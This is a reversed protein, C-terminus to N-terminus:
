KVVGKIMFDQMMINCFNALDFHPLIHRIFENSMIRKKVIGIVITGPNLSEFVPISTDYDLIHHCIVYDVDSDNYRRTKPNYLFLVQKGEEPEVARYLIAWTKEPPKTELMISYSLCKANDIVTQDMMEKFAKNRLKSDVPESNAVYFPEFM